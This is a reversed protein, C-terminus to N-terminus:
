EQLILVGGRMEARSLRGIFTMGLLTTGLQGPESVAADIDYLTIDGISVSDLVVPAVRAIGNATRVRGTFDGPRVFVGAREADEYSLAVMSAGTDVLVQIPRGNVFAAATFHGRAGASLEVTGPSTRDAATEIPAPQVPLTDLRLGLAYSAGAKLEDFWVISGLMMASVLLWRAAESLALRVGSSLRM